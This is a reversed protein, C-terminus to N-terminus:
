CHRESHDLLGPDFFGRDTRDLSSAAPVHLHADDRLLDWLCAFQIVVVRRLIPAEVKKKM